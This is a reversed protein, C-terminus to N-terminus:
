EAIAELLLPLEESIESDPLYKQILKECPLRRYKTKKSKGEFTEDQHKIWDNLLSFMRRQEQQKSDTCPIGAYILTRAQHSFRVSIISKDKHSTTMGDAFFDHNFFMIDYIPYEKEIVDMAIYYTPVFLGLFCPYVVNLVDNLLSDELIEKPQKKMLVIRSILRAVDGYKMKKNVLLDRCYEDCVKFHHFHSRALESVEYILEAKHHNKNKGAAKEKKDIDGNSRIVNVINEADDGVNLRFFNLLNKGSYPFFSTIQMSNSNLMNPISAALKSSYDNPSVDEFVRTLWSPKQSSLSYTMDVCERCYYDDDPNKHKHPCLVITNPDLCELNSPKVQAPILKSYIEDLHHYIFEITFATSSAISILRYKDNKKITGYDTIGKLAIFPIEHIKCLRAIAYSEMEFVSIKLHPFWKRVHKQYQIGSVVLEGSAYNATKAKPMKQPYSNQQPYEVFVEVFEKKYKTYMKKAIHKWGSKKINEAIKGIAYETFFPSEEIAPGRMDHYKRNGIIKGYSHYCISRSCAVDGVVLRGRKNEEPYAAAIGSLLICRPRCDQIIDHIAIAAMLSGMTNLNYLGVTIQNGSKKNVLETTRLRQDQSEAFPLVRSYLFEEEPLSTVVLVDINPM